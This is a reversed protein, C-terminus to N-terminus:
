SYIDSNLSANEKNSLSPSPTIVVSSSPVTILDKPYFGVSISNYSIILSTSSSPLPVISKRSNRVRIAFFIFSMSVSYSNLSAKLINSLSPLQCIEAISSLYTIVVRPSFNVSSSTSSIIFSASISPSPYILQSSNTLIIIACQNLPIMFWLNTM